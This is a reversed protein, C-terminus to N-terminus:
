RADDVPVRARQAERVVQLAASMSAPRCGMALARARSRPEERWLAWGRRALVLVPKRHERVDRVFRRVLTATRSRDLYLAEMSVGADRCRGVIEPAFVGEAILVGAGDLDVRHRGTRRNQAIDYVPVDASGTRCLAVVAAVASAADWSDPHDWDVIGLTHPMAPHDGDHYFDDLNLRPCGALEALRSKGSGSAGALLILTCRAPHDPSGAQSV